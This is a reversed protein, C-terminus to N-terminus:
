SMKSVGKANEAWESFRVAVQISQSTPPPHQPAAPDCHKPRLEQNQEPIMGPLAPTPNAAKLALVWGM